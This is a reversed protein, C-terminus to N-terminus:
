RAAERSMARTTFVEAWAVRAMAFLRAVTVPGGTEPIGPRAM